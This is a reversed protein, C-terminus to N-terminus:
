PTTGCQGYGESESGYWMNCTCKMHTLLRQKSSIDTAYPPELIDAFATLTERAREKMHAFHRCPPPPPPPSPPTEVYHTALSSPLLVLSPCVSLSILSLSQKQISAQKQITALRVTELDAM